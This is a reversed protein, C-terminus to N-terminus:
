HWFDRDWTELSSEIRTPEVSLRGSDLVLDLESTIPQGIADVNSDVVVTPVNGRSKVSEGRHKEALLVLGAAVDSPVLSRDGLIKGLLSAIDRFAQVHGEKRACPMLCRLSRYNLTHAAGASPRWSLLAVAVKM